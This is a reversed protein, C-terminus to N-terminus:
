TTKLFAKEVLDSAALRVADDSSHVYRWGWGSLKTCDLQMMKVDGPWGRGSVGKGYGTELQVGDLGMEESVINAITLVDTRQDTGLNFIDRMSGFEVSEVLGTVCDSVHVYSKSQTGDGLIKLVKPDSRLKKVFDFIVGHGSDGGVVNAFRIIKAGFGFLEAYALIMAECALKSGGYMSIPILPGYTEPTPVITPEGYVTSSSAFVLTGRFGSARIGELLNRTVTVNDRYDTETDEYGIRVEPNAALHFVDDIEGFDLRPVSKSLDAKMFKQKKNRNGKLPVKLPEKKDIGTIQAKPWGESIFRSLHTGIFGSSGTIVVKDGNEM